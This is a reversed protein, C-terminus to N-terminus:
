HRFLWFLLAAIGVFLVAVVMRYFRQFRWTVELAQNQKAIAAESNKRYLELHERQVDRIETLLRVLSDETSM